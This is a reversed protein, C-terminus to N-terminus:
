HNVLFNWVKDASQHHAQSLFSKIVTGLIIKNPNIGYDRIMIEFYKLCKQPDDGKAAADMAIAFAAIDPQVKSKLLLSMIQHVNQYQRLNTCKKMAFGFISVKEIQNINDKIIRLIQNANHCDHIQQRIDANVTDSGKIFNKSGKQNRHFRCHNEQQQWEKRSQKFADSKPFTSHHSSSLQCSQTISLPSTLLTCRTISAHCSVKKKTLISNTPM